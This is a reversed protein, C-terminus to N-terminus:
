RVVGLSLVLVAAARLQMPRGAGSSAVVSSEEDGFIAEDEDCSLATEWLRKVARAVSSMSKQAPPLPLSVVVVSAILSWSTSRLMPRVATVTRPLSKCGLSM